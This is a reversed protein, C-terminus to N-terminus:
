TGRKAIAAARRAKRQPMIASSTVVVDGFTEADGHFVTRAKFYARQVLEMRAVEAETELNLFHDSLSGANAQQFALPMEVTWIYTQLQFFFEIEIPGDVGQRASTIELDEVGEFDEVTFATIASSLDGSVGAAAMFAGVRELPLRELWDIAAVAAQDELDGGWEDLFAMREDATMGRRGDSEPAATPDSAAFLRAEDDNLHFTVEGWPNRNVDGKLRALGLAKAGLLSVTDNTSLKPIPGAVRIRLADWILTMYSPGGELSSSVIGVLDGDTNVVAGGSMGGITEMSVEFCPSAMREGRGQPFAATVVGSSIMPSVLAAGDHIDQHRFGIAWLREGLLPLAVKMPALQLAHTSQADSNLTCSVLSIDSVIRRDDGFASPGSLTMVDIPLWARAADPLFTLLVPGGGGKEFGDLVHTATLVMGPAVMVGSGVVTFGDPGSQAVAVYADGAEFLSTLSGIGDDASFEMTRWSLKLEALAPNDATIRVSHTM